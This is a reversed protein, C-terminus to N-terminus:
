PTPRWTSCWRSSGCSTPTSPTSAPGVEVTLTIGHRAARERVLSAAYELADAVRFTTPELVMQGAEVKSLDLIENLLELLHRGSNWIDRVYEDQRDNLEGFMRDLLVESFGIVANLPTRLEHSMSALFESKHRSAVELEASKTELERFLRANIIAIASQAALTLLLDTTSPPFTGPTARRVLLVGVLRQERRIPVSLLSRWGDAILLKRWRTSADSADHGPDRAGSGGHRRPRLPRPHDARGGRGDARGSSRPPQREGGLVLRTDFTREAEDYEILLGGDASSLRVASALIRELVENLDLSSSIAEGVGRLAELLEVKQALERFLRANVIAVSSQSAFTELLEVMEEPFSGVSRRRIVLVGVIVGGRVMPIALVSRWGDDYLVELHPDAHDQSLDAVELPRRETAARGVLTSDRRITTARLRAVLDPETGFATRVLFTDTAEDYEMISGGDTGTLRVANTVIRSLVEDPDLSSSVAEGVDRLAELQEVKSALEAGRAELSRMLEVQRLAIAAQAAFDDLLEIDRENFPAVATRWMSLVGVVEDDLLMPAALLTRYGALRQLDQRGYEPDGLM